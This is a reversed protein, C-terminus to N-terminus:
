KIPLSKVVAENVKVTYKKKLEAIWQDELWSQYDNIVFGRADSFNRPERDRYVKIIYAFSLSNDTENKVAATILGPTFNTRELVPIQGLEFRSSDAQLTGDSTEMVRKWDRYNAELKKKATDAAAQTVATFLIADASAEWWYNAKHAEYFKKLGISDASAKDWIKRQMIEFLLNGEKFENLQYTFDKNYDELHQRYYDLASTEVFQDFLQPTTKGARMNEFGRLSELNAQWDKLKFAQKGIMFLPTSTTLGAPLPANKGELINNSFQWLATENFPQKKYGTLQLIKKNLVKRSVEMRDSQLVQQKMDERWQKDNKDQPVPVRQLRKIIHYGFETLVPRSLASDKDLAFAANEFAPAYRGVGFAMMEGGTQFSLNDGSFASVLAKFNSGQVLAKYISDARLGIQQKQADTADPPFSLLIQAARMKGIAPREGLNKFIHFGNKSRLPASFKGAPTAYVTNEMEYPLVFVTIFGLDGRNSQVAPDESYTLAAKSFDEGKQLWAYATNVKQQAQKIQEASAQPGAAVYIHAIHIDKKSREIAEEVLIGISAEDNMYSEVVQGRFTVLEAKQNPLTDLKQDLAAQVKIKFRTYLDLYDRYSKETPAAETNNKNYAKLFEDKTVAKNGYTFINQAQTASLTTTFLSAAIIKHLLAM